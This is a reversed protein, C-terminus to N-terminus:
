EKTQYINKARGKVKMTLDQTLVIFSKMTRVFTCLFTPLVLYMRFPQYFITLEFLYTFGPVDQLIQLLHNVCFPLYFLTCGSPNSFINLVFLYIFCPLYLLYTYYDSCLFTSLRLNVFLPLNIFISSFSIYFLTSVFIYICFPVYSLNTVSLYFILYSKLPLYSLTSVSLYM